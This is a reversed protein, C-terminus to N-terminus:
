STRDTRFDTAIIEIKYKWAYYIKSIVVISIAFMFTAPIRMKQSFNAFRNKVFLGM